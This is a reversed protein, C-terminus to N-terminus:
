GEGEGRRGLHFAGVLGALLLFSALEAAVLYPGFLALGVDEAAVPRPAGGLPEALLLWGLEVALVLALVTPGIWIRGRMWGHERAAGASGPDLLMVAFVVLVMIAGAYIIVELAAAFPAGLLLFMVASALLSVVLYLLAHMAVARTVMLLTAALAVAAAIAFAIM